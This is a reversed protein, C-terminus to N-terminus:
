KKSKNRNPVNVPIMIKADDAMIQLGDKVICGDIDLLAPHSFFHNGNFEVEDINDYGDKYIWRINHTYVGDFVTDVIFHYIKEISYAVSPGYFCDLMFVVFADEIQVVAVAATIKGGPRALTPAASRHDIAINIRTLIKRVM